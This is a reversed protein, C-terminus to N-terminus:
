IYKKGLHPIPGRSGVLGPQPHETGAVSSTIKGGQCRPYLLLLPSFDNIVQPLERHCRLM